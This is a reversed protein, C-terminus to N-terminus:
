KASEKQTIRFFQFGLHYVEKKPATTKKTIKLIKGIADEIIASVEPLRAPDFAFTESGVFKEDPSQSELSAIAKELMSKHFKRLAGNPTPSSLQLHEAMSRVYKGDETRELLDLRVWRDMADSAEFVTVGLRKAIEAATLGKPRGALLAFGGACIWDAVSHFHDISLDRFSQNPALERLRTAIKEKQRIDQAVDLQVLSLFFDEEAQSLDLRSAILAAKDTSLSKKHKLVESLMSASVGISGAFARLSYAPNKQIRVVLVHKLYTRYDSYGYIM